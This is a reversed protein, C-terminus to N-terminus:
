VAVNKKNFSLLPYTTESNMRKVLDRHWLNKILSNGERELIAIIDPNIENAYKQLTEFVDVGFHTEFHLKEYRVKHHVMNKFWDMEENSTKEDKNTIHVVQIEADLPKAFAVLDNIIFIDSGEFDSAYLITDIARYPTNNPIAMIPCNAKEMLKTTTSGLLYKRVRSDGKTGVVILDAEIEEAKELIGKWIPSHEAINITINMKEPNNGLNKKCFLALKEKERVFAKVENSVYTTSTTSELVLPVEYVHLVVMKHNLEKSLGYAFHLASISNDSYDTAYLITKM